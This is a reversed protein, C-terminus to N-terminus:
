EVFDMHFSSMMTRNKTIFHLSFLHPSINSLLLIRVTIDRLPTDLADIVASMRKWESFDAILNFTDTWAKSENEKKEISDKINITAYSLVAHVNECEEADVSGLSMVRNVVGICFQDVIQKICAMSENKSLTEGIVLVNIARHILRIVCDFSQILKNTKFSRLDIMDDFIQVMENKFEKLIKQLLDNAIQVSRACSAILSITSNTKHMELGYAHLRPMNQYLLQSAIDASRRLNNSTVMALHPIDEVRRSSSCYLALMLELADPAVCLLEQALIFCGNDTASIAEDFSAAIIDTFKINNPSVSYWHEKMDCVDNATVVKGSKDVIVLKDVLGKENDRSQLAKRAQSILQRRRSRAQSRVIEDVRTRINLDCNITNDNMHSVCAVVGTTELVTDIDTATKILWAVNQAMSAGPKALENADREISAIVQPWISRRVADIAERHSACISSAVFGILTALPASDRSQLLQRGTENEESVLTQLRKTVGVISACEGHSSSEAEEQQCQVLIQTNAFFHAAIDEGLRTAATELVDMDFARAWMANMKDGDVSVAIRCTSSCDSNGVNSVKVADIIAHLAEEKMRERLMAVDRQAAAATHSSPPLLCSLDEMEKLRSIRSSAIIGSKNSDNTMGLLEEQEKLQCLQELARLIERRKKLIALQDEVACLSAASESVDRVAGSVFATSRRRQRESAVLAQQRELASGSATSEDAAGNSMSADHSSSLLEQYLTTLPRAASILKSLEDDVNDNDRGVCVAEKAAQLMKTEAAHQKTRESAVRLELQTTKSESDSSTDNEYMLSSSMNVDYWIHCIM